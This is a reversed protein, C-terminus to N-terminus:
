QLDATIFQNDAPELHKHSRVPTSTVKTHVERHKEFGLGDAKM